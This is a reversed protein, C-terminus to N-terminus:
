PMEMGIVSKKWNLVVQRWKVVNADAPCQSERDVASRDGAHVATEGECGRCTLDQGGADGAIAAVPRVRAVWSSGASPRRGIERPSPPQGRSRARAACRHGNPSPRVIRRGAWLDDPVDGAYQAAEAIRRADVQNRMARQRVRGWADELPDLQDRRPPAIGAVAEERCPEATRPCEVVPPETVGPDVPLVRTRGCSGPEGRSPSARLGARAGSIGADEPTTPPWLSDCDGAELQQRNLCSSEGLNRGLSASGAQDLRMKGFHNPQVM